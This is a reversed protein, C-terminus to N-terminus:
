RRGEMRSFEQLCDGLAKGYGGGKGDLVCSGAARADGPNNGPRPTPEPAPPPPAAVVEPPMATNAVSPRPPPVVIKAPAEQAMDTARSPQVDKSTSEAGTEVKGPEPKAAEQNAPADAKAPAAQKAGGAAMIAEHAKMIEAPDMAPPANKEAAAKAEKEAKAKAKAEAVEKAKAAKKASIGSWITIGGALLVVALTVGGAILLVKPQKLLIPLKARLGQVQTMLQAKIRDVASAAGAEAPANEVDAAQSEKAEEM